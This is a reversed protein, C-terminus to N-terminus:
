NSCLYWKTSEENLGGFSITCLIFKLCLCRSQLEQEHDLVFQPMPSMMDPGSPDEFERGHAGVDDSSMHARM